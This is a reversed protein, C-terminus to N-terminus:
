SLMSDWQMLGPDYDEAELCQTIRLIIFDLIEQMKSNSEIPYPLSKAYTEFKQLYRDGANEIDFPDTPRSDHIALSSIDLFAM